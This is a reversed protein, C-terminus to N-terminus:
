ESGARLSSSWLAIGEIPALTDPWDAFRQPRGSTCPVQLDQHSLNAFLPSSPSSLTVAIPATVLDNGDVASQTIGKKKKKKEEGEEEEEM